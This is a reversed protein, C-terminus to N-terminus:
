QKADAAIVEKPLLLAKGSRALYPPVTMLMRSGSCRELRWLTGTQGEPVPVSFYDPEDMEDFRFVENGAGDLLRGTTSTAFGGVVETGRPVYFYLSWRGRVELPEDLTSRFTAPLDDPLEVRTMDNGDTWALRHLGGYPSRLTV